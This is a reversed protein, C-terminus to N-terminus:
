IKLPNMLPHFLEGCVKELGVMNKDIRSTLTIIEIQFKENTTEAERLLALAVPLSRCYFSLSPILEALCVVVEGISEQFKRDKKQLLFLREVLTNIITYIADFGRPLDQIM